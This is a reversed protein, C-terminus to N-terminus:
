NILDCLCAFSESTSIKAGAQRMRAIAIPIEERNCSSVADSIVYVQHGRALLDLTTQLVCVHSEIGTIAVSSKPQLARELEPTHMSFLTKDLKLKANSIDLESCIEGLAKNNQTTVYVPVNLIKSAQLMKSAIKLIHDFAYIAPRFKEQQDCIFLAPRALRLVTSTM